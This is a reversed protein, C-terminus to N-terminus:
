FAKTTNAEGGGGLGVNFSVFVPELFIALVKQTLIFATAVRALRVFVSRDYVIISALTTGVYM